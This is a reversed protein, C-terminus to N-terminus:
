YVYPRYPVTETFPGHTTLSAGAPVGCVDIAIDGRLDRTQNFRTTIYSSDGRQQDLYALDRPEDIVTDDFPHCDQKILCPDCAIMGTSCPDYRSVDFNCYQGCAEKPGPFMLDGSSMGYSGPYGTPHSIPKCRSRSAYSNNCDESICGQTYVSSRVYSGLNMYRPDSRGAYCDKPKPVFSAPAHSFGTCPNCMLDGCALEHRYYGHQQNNGHM